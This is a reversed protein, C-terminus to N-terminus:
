LPKKQLKFKIMLRLYRIVTPLIHIKSQTPKRDYRLILPYETIQPNLCSLKLLFETMVTFGSEKLFKNHYVEGFKKLLSGSYARYGSTYDRVNPIPFLCRLILSVVRSAIQRIRPVGIQESGACFRSVIVIDAKKEELPITLTPIIEPPHTDDSDLTIVIDDPHLRPLVFKLGTDIARGLGQNSTHSLLTIPIHKKWEHIINETHDTSGDNVIVIHYKCLLNSIRSFVNELAIEENYAPLIIYIM